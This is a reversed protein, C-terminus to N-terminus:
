FGTFYEAPKSYIVRPPLRTLLYICATSHLAFTFNICCTNSPQGMLLWSRFVSGNLIGVKLLLSFPALILSINPSFVFALLIEWNYLSHVSSPFLSIFSFQFRMCIHLLLTVNFKLFHLVATFACPTILFSLWPHPRFTPYSIPCLSPFSLCQFFIPM